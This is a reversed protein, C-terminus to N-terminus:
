IELYRKKYNNLLERAKDQELIGHLGGTEFFRGPFTISEIRYGMKQKLDRKLRFVKKGLEGLKKEDWDLGISKLAMAVTASDYVNRAFLCTCLCNLVNREIEEDLICKVIEDPQWGSVKQDVAYGANDLHSHRAGVAQGLIFAYGTHYGAMENGGLCMAFDRGGYKGSAYWTGRALDKYFESGSSVLSNIIERYVAANGFSPRCGVSEENVLGKEFAETLWGLLVGTSIADLGYLETLEILSLLEDRDGIGLFSGLAFVLEHDYSVPITFYEHPEGFSRRLQGIHICGIPCGSCALKRVLSFRAFAEGSIEDAKEFSGSRLNRTPLGNMANLPLVNVVTGLGHYKEMVDTEVVRRYIEKYVQRYESKDPVALSEEGKIVVAKLNKSGFVAGLGLRGFHRYTDVNVGAFSIKKEGGRGIRICSRFGPSTETRRLIRGTDEINLGWLPEANKFEAGTNSITLYVPREARGKIVIADYGAFRMALGLRMGAYSEGLEGTLPSRFMAVVKTVVPFITEMPGIAFVIPQGPDLPPSDAPVHEDLLKAAVGVGGLYELLDPRNTIRIKRATLDIELVRIGNGNIM